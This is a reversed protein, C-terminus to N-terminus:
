KQVWQSEEGKFQNTIYEANVYTDETTKILNVKHWKIEPMLMLGLGFLMPVIIETLSIFMHMEDALDAKGATGLM